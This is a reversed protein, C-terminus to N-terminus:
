NRRRRWAYALAGLGATVLIALADPEPVQQVGFGYIANISLVGPNAVPASTLTGTALNLTYITKALWSAAYLTNTGSEFALAGVGTVNTTCLKTATGPTDPNAVQWIENGSAVAAIYAGSPTRAIDGGSNSTSDIQGLNAASTYNGGGDLSIRILNATSDSAVALLSSNSEAELANVTSSLVNKWYNIVTGTTPDLRIVSRGWTGSDAVGVAYVSGQPTIAIDGYLWGSATTTLKTIVTTSTDYQFVESYGSSSVGSGTAGWITAATVPQVFSLIMGLALFMCVTRMIRSRSLNIVKKTRIRSPPFFRCLLTLGGLMLLGLSSPEPVVTNLYGITVRLAIDSAAEAQSLPLSASVHTFGAAFCQYTDSAQSHLSQYWSDHYAMYNCLFNGPDGNWDVWASIGALSVADAIKQVPLTSHRIYGAAVSSDPPSLTPQTPAVYDNSWSARNKANFEIEWPGSGQGYSLIALPHLLDTFKWFDASTDQYDVRFDGEGVSGGYPFTPFFSYVHYGSNEWNAGQWGGPNLVPNTSFKTLM